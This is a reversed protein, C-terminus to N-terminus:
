FHMPSFNLQKKHMDTLVTIQLQTKDPLLQAYTQSWTQYLHIMKRIAVLPFVPLVMQLSALSTIFM